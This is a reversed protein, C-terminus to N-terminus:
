VELFECRSIHAMLATYMMSVRRNELHGLCPGLMTGTLIKHYQMAPWEHHVHANASKLIIDSELSSFLKLHGEYGKYIWAVTAISM